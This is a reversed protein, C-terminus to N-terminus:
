IKCHYKVFSYMQQCIGKEFCDKHNITKTSMKFSKLLFVAKPDKLVEKHRIITDYLTVSSFVDIDSIFYHTTEITEIALDRLLNIPFMTENYYQPGKVDYFISKYFSKYDESIIYLLFTIRKENKYINVIQETRPLESEKLFISMVIRHKWRKVLYPLRDQRDLTLVTILTVDDFGNNDDLSLCSMIIFVLM